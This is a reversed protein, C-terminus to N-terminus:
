KLDGKSRLSASEFMLVYAGDSKPRHETGKPVVAIQGKKLIINKRTPKMQITIEGKVVYFLEDENDHKHWNYEGKFLALRVAQDNTRAVEVPHWPRGAIEKIKDDLSTIKM